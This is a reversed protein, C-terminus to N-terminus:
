NPYVLCHYEFQNTQNTLYYLDSNLPDYWDTVIRHIKEIIGQICQFLDLLTVISIRFFNTFVFQDSELHPFHRHLCSILVFDKGSHPFLNIESTFIKNM